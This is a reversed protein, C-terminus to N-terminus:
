DNKNPGPGPERRRRVAPVAGVVAAAVGLIALLAEIRAGWTTAPTLTSRVGVTAVLHDADFLATRSTVTGDPAILSGFLFPADGRVQAAMLKRGDDLHLAIWDWGRQTRDLPQSSWERDLWAQGTVKVAGGPSPATTVAPNSNSTGTRKSVSRM